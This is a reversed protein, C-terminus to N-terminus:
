LSLLTRLHDGKECDGKIGEVRGGTRELVNLLEGVTDYYSQASRQFGLKEWEEQPSSSKIENWITKWRWLATKFPLLITDM